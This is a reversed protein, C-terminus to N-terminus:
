LIRKLICHCKKTFAGLCHRGWDEEGDKNTENFGVPHTLMDAEVEGDSQWHTLNSGNSPLSDRFLECCSPSYDASFTKNLDTPLLPSHVSSADPAFTVQFFPALPAAPVLCWPSIGVESQKCNMTTAKTWLLESICRLTTPLAIM